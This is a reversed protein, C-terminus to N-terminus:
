DDLKESACRKGFRSHKRRSALFAGSRTVVEISSNKIVPSWLNISKNLYSGSFPDQGRTSVPIDINFNFM